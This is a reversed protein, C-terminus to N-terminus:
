LWADAGSWGDDENVGMVVVLGMKVPPVIASSAARPPPDHQNEGRTALASERHESM